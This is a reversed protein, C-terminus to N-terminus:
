KNLAQNLQDLAYNFCFRDIYGIKYNLDFREKASLKNKKCFNKTLTLITTTLVPEAHEGKRMKEIEEVIEQKRISLSKILFNRIHERNPADKFIPFMAGTGEFAPFKKDFEEIIKDKPM